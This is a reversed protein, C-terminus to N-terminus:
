FNSLFLKRWFFFINEISFNDSKEKACRSIKRISNPNNMLQSLQKIYKNENFSPIIFGSKSNEIIDIVSAYSDFSFPIVGFQMAEILVMPLGEINSTLCIISAKKYYSFIDSHFGEFYIHDIGREKVYNELVNREPGDGVIILKWDNFKKYLNEFIRILRDVRKQTKDLRGVYLIIKEKEGLNINVDIKILPNPICEVKNCDKLRTVKKFINIYEKSLLVYKDSNMYLFRHRKKEKQKCRYISIPYFFKQVNFKLNNSYTNELLSNSYMRIQADPTNHEVTIIKCQIRNKVKVILSFIPAYSHQHILFDINRNKIENILYEENENSLLDLSPLSLLTVQKNLKDLLDENEQNLSIIFVSYGKEIFENSLVTTVSEIGGYGPYRDLYFLINIM